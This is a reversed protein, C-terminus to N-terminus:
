FKYGIGITGITSKHYVQMDSDAINNYRIQQMELNLYVNKDFLIKSGFGYGWGNTAKSLTLLSSKASHYAAKFYALTNDNIAYGPEFNVSYHNKLKWTNAGLIGDGDTGKYIVANSLDYTFGVGFTSSPSLVFSYTTNLNFPTSTAGINFESDTVRTFNSEIGTNLGVSLGSFNDAQAFVSTSAILGVLILFKKIM